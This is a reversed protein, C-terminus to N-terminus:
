CDGARSLAFSGVSQGHFNTMESYRAQAHRQNPKAAVIKADADIKFCRALDQMFGEVEAYRHNIRGVNVALATRFSKETLYHTM